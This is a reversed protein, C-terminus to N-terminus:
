RRWMMNDVICSRNFCRKIQILPTHTFINRRKYTFWSLCSLSYHIKSVFSIGVKDCIVSWLCHVHQMDEPVVECKIHIYSTDTLGTQDSKISLQTMLM